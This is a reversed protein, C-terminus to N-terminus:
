KNHLHCFLYCLVLAWEGATRSQLSSRLRKLAETLQNKVTQESLGLRKAIEAISCDDERSLRFIEQMRSPLKSVEAEIQRQLDKTELNDAPMADLVDFFSVQRIEAQSFAYHSIVRYKIATFLYGGLEGNEKLRIEKRRNWLTIMVEQVMDKAEDKDVRQCARTYLAKWYRDYLMEFAAVDDRKISQLLESDSIPKAQM